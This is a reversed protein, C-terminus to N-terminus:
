RTKSWWCKCSCWCILHGNWSQVGMCCVRSQNYLITTMIDDTCTIRALITVRCSLRKSAKGNKMSNASLKKTPCLTNPWVNKTKRWPNSCDLAPLVQLACWLNLWFYPTWKVVSNGCLMCWILYVINDAAHRWYSFMRALMTFRCSFLKSAKGNKMTNASLKETSWLSIPRTNGYVQLAYWLNFLIVLQPTYIVSYLCTHARSNRHLECTVITYRRLIPLTNHCLNRLYRAITLNLSSCYCAGLCM